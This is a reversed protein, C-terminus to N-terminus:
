LPLMPQFTSWISIVILLQGPGYLLWIADNMAPLRLPSFLDLAILLDSVLFLVAGLALGIFLPQQWALGSAVGATSALLLAYPLVAWRLRSRAAGRFFLRYVLAIGLALWLLLAIWGLPAYGVMAAIYAVHGVGFTLMGMLVRHPAPLLRAMFLDGVFGSTMGLAILGAYRSPAPASALLVGYWALMVLVLSSSIRAWRPIGPPVARRGLLYGGLLLVAWLAVLMWAILDLPPM